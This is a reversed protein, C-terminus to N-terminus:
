CLFSGGCGMAFLSDPDSFLDLGILEGFTMPLLNENTNMYYDAEPTDPRDTDTYETYRDM